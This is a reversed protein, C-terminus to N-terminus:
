AQDASPQSQRDPVDVLAVAAATDVLELRTYVNATLTPTSHRLLRQATALPVGARALSTGFTVRLAHFDAFGESTEYEIGAADLDARFTKMRPVAPFVPATPLAPAADWSAKLRAVIRPALPLTADRRNKSTSARTTVTAADLDVDGWTLAALEGRRLGTTAAVAYILSRDAPSADLLRALEATSLARRDRTKGVVRPRAVAAVPNSGWRGERRLWEFFGHTAVRYYDRTRAGVQLGDLGKRIREPTLGALREVDGAIAAVRAKTRTVHDTSRGLRDLHEGYEQVLDRVPTERMELAPVEIGAARQEEIEVIKVARKAAAHGDSTGLARRYKRGDIWFEVTWKASTRTGGRPGRYKRKFIRM